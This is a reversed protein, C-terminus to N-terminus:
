VIINYNVGAEVYHDRVNLLKVWVGQNARIHGNASKEIGLFNCPEAQQVKQSEMATIAKDVPAVYTTTFLDAM